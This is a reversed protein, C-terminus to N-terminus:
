CLLRFRITGNELDGSHNLFYARQTNCKLAECEIKAGARGYSCACRRNERETYISSVQGAKRIGFALTPCAVGERASRNVQTLSPLNNSSYESNRMHM